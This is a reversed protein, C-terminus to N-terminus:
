QQKQTVGFGWLVFSEGRVFDIAHDMSWVMFQISDMVAYVDPLAVSFDKVKLLPSLAM